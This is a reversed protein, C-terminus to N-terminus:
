LRGEGVGRALLGGLIVIMAAAAIGAVLLWSGAGAATRWALDVLLAAFLLATLVLFTSTARPGASM